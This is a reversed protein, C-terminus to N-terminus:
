DKVHINIDGNQSQNIYNAAEIDKHYYNFPDENNQDTKTMDQYTILSSVMQQSGNLALNKDVYNM